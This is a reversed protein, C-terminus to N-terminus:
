ILRLFWGCFYAAGAAVLGNGFTRVAIIRLADSLGLMGGRRHLAHQEAYSASALAIACVAITWPGLNSYGAVSAALISLFSLM